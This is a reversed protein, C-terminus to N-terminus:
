KTFNGEHTGIEACISNKPMARLLFVRGSRDIIPSPILRALPWLFRWNKVKNLMSKRM